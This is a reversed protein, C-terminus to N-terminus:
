QNSLGRNKFSPFSSSAVDVGESPAGGLEVLVMLGEDPRLSRGIAIHNDREWIKITIMLKTPITSYM